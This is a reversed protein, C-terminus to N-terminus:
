KKKWCYCLMDDRKITVNEDNVYKMGRVDFGRSCIVAYGNPTQSISCEVDPHYEEIEAVLNEVFKAKNVDVDLLWKREAKFEPRMVISCIRADILEMPFSDLDILDHIVAKKLSDDNKRTNVSIYMRSTEGKVGNKAFYEFRNKAEALDSSIFANRRPKFDKVDKNDKNRSVFLVGYLPKEEHKGSSWKTFNGAM